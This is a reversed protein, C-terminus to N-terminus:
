AVNSVRINLPSMDLFTEDAPTASLEDLPTHDIKNKARQLDRM